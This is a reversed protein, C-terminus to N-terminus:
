SAPSAVCAFLAPKDVKGSNNRPLEGRFEVSQPVMFDELHARCHALVQTATLTADRRVVFAKIAQGLVPDPAGLVAAEAVGPLACLVTEVEKPAVKEGRSKIIDDKRGVFYFFGEADQRFLDGSYCLRGGTEPDPRFRQATAEPVEWYGRMVHPGRIVLEGTEGLDCRRGNEDEVWAETGPIPIGVSGPRREIQEPPLYLTRKTETLGYMSFLKASSFRRHLELVHSPPLAAATNTLYRLSSLDYASLDMRLLLAFMTPVGPFGTVREAAIKQLVVAPFAFSRELVLTGGFRFTMLLQYLGYDFSLPLASLVIDTEINGLYQIISGSAFVVQQHDCMVGKPEGTSGSTYILCALDEERSPTTAELPPFQALLEFRMVKVGDNPAPLSGTAAGSRVVARLWQTVPTPGRMETILAVARCNRLIFELKDAKTTANVPVFVAGAKLTAFIGVVAELSNPLHVVVRDGPVVGHEQLLKALRSSLDDLEAYTWRRGDCILAPKAPSRHASGTLFDHLSM